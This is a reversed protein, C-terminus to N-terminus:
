SFDISLLWYWQITLKLVTKQLLRDYEILWLEM